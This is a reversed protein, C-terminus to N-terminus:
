RHVLLTDREFGVTEINDTDDTQRLLGQRRFPSRGEDHQVAEAAVHIRFADEFGALQKGFEAVDTQAEVHPAAALTSALLAADDTHFLDRIRLVRDRKERLMRFYVGGADRQDAAAEACRDCD